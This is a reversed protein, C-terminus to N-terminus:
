ANGLLSELESILQRVPKPSANLTVPAGLRWSEIWPLNWVRPVGGGVVQALDRLPRPLRGPADAIIVLGLLDVRADLAGSAWHTAARQAALLGAASSRAVLVTRIRSRPGGTLPWAHGAPAWAPVLAGLSTEGAGGHVGVWWLDATRAPFAVPLQDVQEPPTVGAQPGLPGTAWRPTTEARPPEAVPGAPSSLWQSHTAANRPPDPTQAASATMPARESSHPMLFPNIPSM